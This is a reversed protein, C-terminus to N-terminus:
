TADGSVQLPGVSPCKRTMVATLHLSYNGVYDKIKVDKPLKLLGQEALEECLSELTRTSALLCFM